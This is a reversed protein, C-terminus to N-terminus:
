RPKLPTCRVVSTGTSLAWVPRGGKVPFIDATGGSLLLSTGDDVAAFVPVKGDVNTNIFCDVDTSIRCFKCNSPPTIVAASTTVSTKTGNAHDFEPDQDREM